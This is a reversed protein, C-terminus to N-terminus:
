LDKPKLFENLIDVKGPHYERFRELIGSVGKSYGGCQDCHGLASRVIGLTKKEPQTGSEKRDGFSDLVGELVELVRGHVVDRLVRYFDLLGLSDREALRYFSYCDECLGQLEEIRM